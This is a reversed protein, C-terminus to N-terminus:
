GRDMGFADRTYTKDIVDDLCRNYRNAVIIEAQEKFADLDNEVPYGMFSEACGLLPEYLVIRAGQEKLGEIIDLLSSHRIGGDSGEMVLRYIGILADDGRARRLIDQIVHEKRLSNSDSIASIIRQPTHEYSELLQRTDKPLCYGGFGFGPNNYSAGIRPDKGMAEIIRRADFGADGSFSDLENFFAIRLALYANSFLKTAEAEGFEMVMVPADNEICESLLAAIREADELSRANALDAGLVIRSPRLTDHLANGERLFEPSHLIRARGNREQLSATFGVPVTSKILVVADPNARLVQEVVAEVMSTDIRDTLADYDTSVAVIVLEASAYAAEAETTATLSLEQAELFEGMGSIPLPSVGRNISDVRQADVDVAIVECDRALIAALPLGVYGLGVVAIKLPADEM